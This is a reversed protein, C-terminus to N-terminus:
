SNGYVKSTGTFLILGTTILTTVSNCENIGSQRQEKTKALPLQILITNTQHNNKSRTM